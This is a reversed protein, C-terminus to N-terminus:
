GNLNDESLDPSAEPVPRFVVKVEYRNNISKVIPGFMTNMLEIAQQESRSMINSEVAERRFEEPYWHRKRSM